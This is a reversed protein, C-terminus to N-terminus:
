SMSNLPLPLITYGGEWVHVRWRVYFGFRLSGFEIFMAGLCLTYLLGFFCSFQFLMTEAGEVLLGFVIAGESGFFFAVIQMGDSFLLFDLLAFCMKIFFCCGGRLDMETGFALM